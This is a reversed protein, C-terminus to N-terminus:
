GALLEKIEEPGLQGARKSDLRGETEMTAVNIKQLTGGDVIFVTDGDRILVPQPAGGSMGKLLLLMGMGDDDKKDGKNDGGMMMLLPLLRVIDVDPDALLELFIQAGPDMGKQAGGEPPVPAAAPAAPQAMTIAAPCLLAVVLLLTATRMM